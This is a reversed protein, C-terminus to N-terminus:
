QVPASYVGRKPVVDERMAGNTGVTDNDGTHRLVLRIVAYETIYIFKEVDKPSIALTITKPMEKVKEDVIMTDQGLSLVEVNQLVIKTIRPYVEKTDTKEVAEQEFSAVVDVFDGPRLLNSVITQEQVNISVARMGEPMNSSLTAKADDILREKVIQEGAIISEKVRKGVIDTKMTLAKLNLEDKKIKMLKVDADTIKYKPPLDKVAVYTNVYEVAVATKTTSKTIYVYILLSTFITLILTIFIVKKNVSEM